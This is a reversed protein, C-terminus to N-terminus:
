HHLVQGNGLGKRFDATPQFILTFATGNGPESEIKLSAAHDQSIGHVISLGLGTGGQIQRTTFFPDFIHRAQKENLGIGNDKVTLVVSEMKKETKLVLHTAKAEIANRVLNTIVQEIGTRNIPLICHEATLELDIACANGEAYPRCLEVAQTVVDNLSTPSKDSHQASAFSRVNRIIEKCRRAHEVIEGLTGRLHEPVNQSALAFQAALLIGGVPNNIEHAIGGALTGISVLRESQRLKEQSEELERTRQEVITELRNRYQTLEDEVQKKSTIDIVIGGFYSIDGNPTRGVWTRDDVWRVKGNGTIIRYKQNFRDTKDQTYTNVEDSVRNLDDPHVIESFVIKGSLLDAPDYGFQSVNDSVYVVPWGPTNGWLFAVAPSTNVIRELEERKQATKRLSEEVIIRHTIDRAIGCIGTIEGNVGRTPVKIIHFTREIGRIVKSHEDHVIKGRLVQSDLKQTHKGNFDPFITDDDKGVIESASLGLLKEMAPNVQSYRFDRTKLFITDEAADFIARFRNESEKMANEATTLRVLQAIMHSINELIADDSAALHGHTFLSIVGLVEGADSIIQRATQAPKDSKEEDVWTAAQETNPIKAILDRSGSSSILHLDQDDYRHPSPIKTASNYEETCALRNDGQSKLWIGCAQAEFLEVATATVMNLKDKFSAPSLIQQQLHNVTKQRRTARESEELARKRESIDRAVTHMYSIGNIVIRRNSFETHVKSGNKRLIAAETDVETGDLIKDFYDNFAHLDISDHLDPIHMTKLEKITYGTLLSAAPNADVFRANGDSIFIADRSGDFVTRFWQQAQRLEEVTQKLETIEKLTTLLKPDPTESKTIGKSM